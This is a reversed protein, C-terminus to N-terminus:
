LTFQFILRLLLPMPSLDGYSKIVANLSFLFFICSELAMCDMKELMLELVCGCLCEELVTAFAHTSLERLGHVNCRPM